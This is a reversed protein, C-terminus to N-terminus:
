SPFLILLQESGATKERAMQVHALRLRGLLIMLRKPAMPVTHIYLWYFAQSLYLAYDLVFWIVNEFCKNLLPYALAACAQLALSRTETTIEKISEAKMYTMMHDLLDTKKSFMLAQDQSPRPALSQRDPGRSPDPEAECGYGLSFALCYILWYYRQKHCACILSKKKLGFCIRKSM